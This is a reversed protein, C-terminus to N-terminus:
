QSIKKAQITAGLPPFKMDEYFEIHGPSQNGVIVTGAEGAMIKDAEQLSGIAAWGGSREVFDIASEVKPGMSGDPFHHVLDKIAAPSVTKIQRQTPKGFDTAVASVDTLILLGKAGLSLGVMAAARDKDIVAEVGKYHGTEPDELVPIGGGGACIVVCNKETLFKVAQLQHDVMKMPLPSPVVRRFHKGDAKVPLGLKDAEEKTYIPGSNFGWPLFKNYWQM